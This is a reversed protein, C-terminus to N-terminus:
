KKCKHSNLKGKTKYIKGCEECCFETPNKEPESGIEDPNVFDFYPEELLSETNMDDDDSCANITECKSDPEFILELEGNETCGRLKQDVERSKEKFAKFKELIDM